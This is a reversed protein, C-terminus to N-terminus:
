QAQETAMEEQKQKEKKAVWAEWSKGDATDKGSFDITAVDVVAVCIPTSDKEQPFVEINTQSLNFIFGEVKNGDQLEITTDGRYDVAAELAEQFDPMDKSITFGQKYKSM